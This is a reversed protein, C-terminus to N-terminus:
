TAGPPDIILALDQSKTQGWAVDIIPMGNGLQGCAQHALEKTIFAIEGLGQGLLQQDRLPKLEDGFQTFLHVVTQEVPGVFQKETFAGVGPGDGILEFIDSLSSCERWRLGILKKTLRTAPRM